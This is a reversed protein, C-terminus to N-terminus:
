RSGSIGPYVSLYWFLIVHDSFSSVNFHARLIAVTFAVSQRANMKSIDFLSTQSHITSYSTTVVEEDDPSVFYHECDIVIKRKQVHTSM